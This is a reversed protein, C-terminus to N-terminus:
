EAATKILVDLQVPRMPARSSFRAPEEPLRSAVLRECTRGQCPGQGARTVVKLASMSTAGGAVAADVEGLTVDECRCLITDPTALSRLGPRPDFLEGLIGAFDALKARRARLESPVTPKAKGNGNTGRAVYAAATWGALEGEVRALDSGGIGTAEGAVYVGPVSTAMDADHAVADGRLECGLARALDVSPLFGYATCVADVDYTRENGTPAWDPGCEAITASEVRDSGEARVLVHGWEIRRVKTRYGVYEKLKGPHGSMRPSVRAWDRRRTAEAVAVVKAGTAALQAAVPLLFPGAGALLVRRGPVIGQGKALAQAGGATMVGPLTWGPFAIPRDYAGTALVTATARVREVPGTLLLDGPAPAAWVSVGSLVTVTSAALAACLERAAGPLSRPAAEGVEDFRRRWIQGGPAAYEDILAVRLGARAAALAASMGAPGGGVVAVDVHLEEMM